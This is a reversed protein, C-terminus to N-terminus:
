NTKGDDPDPLAYWGAPIDMTRRSTQGTPLMVEVSALKITKAIRVPEGAPVYVAPSTCGAMWAALVTLAAGWGAGKVLARLRERLAPRQPQVVSATADSTAKVWFAFLGLLVGVVIQIVATV